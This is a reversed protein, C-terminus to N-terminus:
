ETCEDGLVDTIGDDLCMLRLAADDQGIASLTQANLNRQCLIDNPPCSSPLMVETVSCSSLLLLVIGLRLHLWLHFM